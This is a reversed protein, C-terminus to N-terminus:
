EESSNPRNFNNDEPRGDRRKDLVHVNYRQIMVFTKGCCLIVEDEFDYAGTGLTWVCGSLFDPGNFPCDPVRASDNFWKEIPYRLATV